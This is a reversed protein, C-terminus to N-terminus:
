TEGNFPVRLGTGNKLQAIRGAQIEGSAALDTLAFAADLPNDGPLDDVPCVNFEVLCAM